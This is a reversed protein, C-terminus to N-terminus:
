GKNRMARIHPKGNGKLAFYTGLMELAVLEDKTLVPVVTDDSQPVSIHSIEMITSGDKHKVEALAM